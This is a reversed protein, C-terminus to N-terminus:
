GFCIHIICFLYAIKQKVQNQKLDHEATFIVCLLVYTCVLELEVYM